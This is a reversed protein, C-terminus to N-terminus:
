NYEFLGRFETACSQSRQATPNNSELNPLMASESSAEAAQIDGIQVEQATSNAKQDILVESFFFQLDNLVTEMQDFPCEFSTVNGDPAVFWMRMEKVVDLKSLFLVAQNNTKALDILAEPTNLQKSQDEKIM